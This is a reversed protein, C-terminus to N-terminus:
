KPRVTTPTASAFWGIIVPILAIFGSPAFRVSGWQWSGLEWTPGIHFVLIMFLLWWTSRSANQLCFYTLVFLMVYLSLAIALMLGAWAWSLRLWFPLGIFLFCGAILVISALRYERQRTFREFFTRM